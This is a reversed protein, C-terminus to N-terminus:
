GILFLCQVHVLSSHFSLFKPSIGTLTRDFQELNNIQQRRRGLRSKIKILYVVAKGTCRVKQYMEQCDVALLCRSFKLQSLTRNLRVRYHGEPAGLSIITWFRKFM